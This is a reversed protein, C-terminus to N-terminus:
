SEQRPRKSRLEAPITPLFFAGGLDSVIILASSALAITLAVDSPVNLLALAEVYSWERIGIGGLSIPLLTAISVLPFVVSFAILDIPYGAAVSVQQFLWLVLASNVFSTLIVQLIAGPPLRMMGLAQHFDALRGALKQPLSVVGPVPRRCYFTEGKWVIWVLFAVGLWALLYLSRLPIGRWSLPCLVVAISGYVLLSVLGAARDQLVSAFGYHLPMGTKRTIMYAKVVDGGILSPLGVNFLMGVFYLQFFTGYSGRMGLSAAFLRWRQACLLQGIWCAVVLIALRGHEVASLDHSIKALDVSRFVIFLLLATVAIKVSPLLSSPLRM